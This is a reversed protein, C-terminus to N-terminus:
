HNRTKMWVLAGAVVATGIGVMAAVPLPKRQGNEQISKVFTREPFAGQVDITKQHLAMQVVEALHLARRNTAQSIQERCSFGDTVILTDTPAERVRPLLVSEGCKMSVDYTQGKEFGFAGAMGCCGSDLVEFDLGLKKLIAKEDDFKMIAKHHCHGHVLASLKLSPPTYDIKQLFESLLYSQDRLRQADLDRPFFNTMEERFVSICSPELGVISVGERIPERLTDIIQRLWRKATDLMGYDYLPRGCCLDPEPVIVRYGASELIEVAAQGVEPHFYNNFTDPWLIM